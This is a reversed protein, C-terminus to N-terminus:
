DSIALVFAGGIVAGVVYGALVQGATHAGLTVRSWGIILPVVLLVAIWGGAFGMSGVVVFVAVASHASLKWALNVLLVAVVGGVTCLVGSILEWPADIALLLGLGLAISVLTAGLIPARQRRDSVHHDTISGRRVLALVGALPLATTFGVAVLATPLGAPWGAFRFALIVLFLSVLVAPALVESVITAARYLGTDRRRGSLVPDPLPRSDDHHHM